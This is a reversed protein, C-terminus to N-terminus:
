MVSRDNEGYFAEDVLAHLNDYPVFAIFQEDDNYLEVGTDTHDYRDCEIQGEPLIARYM